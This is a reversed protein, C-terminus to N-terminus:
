WKFGSDINKPFPEIERELTDAIKYWLEECGFSGDLSHGAIEKLEERFEEGFVLSTFPNKDDDWDLIRTLWIADEKTLVEDRRGDEVLEEPSIDGGFQMALLFPYDINFLRIDDSEYLKQENIQKIIQELKPEVAKYFSEVSQYHAKATNILKEVDEIIEPYKYKLDEYRQEGIEEPWDKISEAWYHRSYEFGKWYDPLEGKFQLLTVILRDTREKESKELNRNHYGIEAITKDVIYSQKRCWYTLYSISSMPILTFIAVEISGLLAILFATINSLIVYPSAKWIAVYVEKKTKQENQKAFGLVISDEISKLSIAEGM